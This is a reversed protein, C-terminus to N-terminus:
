VTPVIHTVPDAEVWNIAGTDVQDVNTHLHRGKCLLGQKIGLYKFLAAPDPLGSRSFWM